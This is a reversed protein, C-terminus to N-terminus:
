AINTMNERRLKDYCYPLDDISTPFGDHLELRILELRGFTLHCEVTTFFVRVVASKGYVNRRLVKVM